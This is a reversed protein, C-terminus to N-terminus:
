LTARYCEYLSTNWFGDWQLNIRRNAIFKWTYSGSRYQRWQPGTAFDINNGPLQSNAQKCSWFLLPKKSPGAKKWGVPAKQFSKLNSQNAPYLQGELFGSKNQDHLCAICTNCFWLNHLFLPTYHQLYLTRNVSPTRVVAYFQIVVSGLVRSWFNKPLTVLVILWFQV